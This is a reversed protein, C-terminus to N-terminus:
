IQGKRAKRQCDMCLVRDGFVDARAACFDIVAQSVHRGCGQCDARSAPGPMTSMVPTVAPAPPGVALGFKAPWDISIPKHLAALQRAVREIEGKGALRRLNVIGKSELDRDMLTKLQDVKIM